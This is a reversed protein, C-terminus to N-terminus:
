DDIEQLEKTLDTLDTFRFDAVISQVFLLMKKKTTGYIIKKRYTTMQCAPTFYFSSKLALLGVSFEVIKYILLHPADSALQFM